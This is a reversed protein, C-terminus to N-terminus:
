HSSISIDFRSLFILYNSFSFDNLLKIKIIILINLLKIKIIIFIITNKISMIIMYINFSNIDM